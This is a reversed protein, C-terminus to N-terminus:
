QPFRFCGVQIDGSSSKVSIYGRNEGSVQGYPGSEVAMFILQGNAMTVTKDEAAGMVGNGKELTITQDSGTGNMVVIVVREDGCIPVLASDADDLFGLSNLKIPSMENYKFEIPTLKMGAM